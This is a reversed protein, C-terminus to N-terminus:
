SCGCGGVIESEMIKSKLIYAGDVVILDDENLEGAVLTENLGAFTVKVETPIFSDPGDRVFVVDTGALNQVADSPVILHAGDDELIIAAAVFMGPKLLDGPNDVRVRIKFAFSAEDMKPSIFTIKGEFQQDPYATSYVLVKQGTKVKGIDKEYVDFNAFVETPREVDQAIRGNVPIKGAMKSSVVKVTKLGISKQTEEPIEISVGVYDIASAEVHGRQSPGDSHATIVSPTAATEASIQATIFMGLKLLNEPNRVVARVKTTNTDRDIRPSIFIIEGDFCKDPYAASRVCIKQGTRVDNIDKEYVDFTMQLVSFDAITHLSSISNVKEGTKASSGIIVGSIPSRIEVPSSAGDPSVVCLLDGKKVVSGTHARCEIITGTGPAPVNITHEADQAITGFVSIKKEFPALKADESYSIGGTSIFLTLAAIFIQWQIRRM